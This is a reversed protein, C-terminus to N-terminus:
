IDYYGFRKLQNEDERWNKNVKVRLELFVKKQLFEEIDKRAETGIRKISSGGEGILIGKQSDRMVFIIAQIKTITAEDKFSDVVVEVSYPIEQEFYIFIKERIIESIFFRESKEALQDKPFYPPSIPLLELINSYLHEINFKHLASIPMITAKPFIKQWKAILDAVANQNSLDIKNIICIIPIESANLKNIIENTEPKENVETLFLFIDADKLAVGVFNMMREQMLYATKEIIGPTDSFVIQHNEENVIGIIRHRTTQIKPTVIAIKEGILVNMLTSKGVNPKGIINVFGAKHSINSEM